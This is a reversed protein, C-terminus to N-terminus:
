IIVEQSFLYEAKDDKYRWGEVCHRACLLQRCFSSHIFSYVFPKPPSLNISTDFLLRQLFHDCHNLWPESHNQSFNKFDGANWLIKNIIWHLSQSLKHSIGIIAFHAFFQFYLSSVTKLSLGKCYDLSYSIPSLTLTIIFALMEIEFKLKCITELYTRKQFPM